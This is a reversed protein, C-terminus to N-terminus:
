LQKKEEAEQAESDAEAWRPWVRVGHGRLVPVHGAAPARRRGRGPFARSMEQRLSLEAVLWLALLVLPYGFRRV